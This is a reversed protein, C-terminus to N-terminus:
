AKIEVPVGVPLTKALKTIADNSLRICGHSVDKGLGAPDNTGHIGIVGDGGAFDFLVESFGSLAYAYPGYPGTSFPRGRDDTPQLLETTYYLGGPTPTEARGVGIPEQMFIESGKTVSLRHADLEVVIRYDHSTLDVDSQRIWGSSGNPRVPLLVKMWESHREQVLFVLESGSPTPNALERVPQRQVPSDYIGVSRVTKRTHAVVSGTEAATQSQGATVNATALTTTASRQAGRSASTRDDQGGCAVFALVLAMGASLRGLLRGLLRCQMRGM